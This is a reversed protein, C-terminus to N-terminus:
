ITNSSGQNRSLKIQPRSGLIIGGCDYKGTKGICFSTLVQIKNSEVSGKNYSDFASNVRLFHLIATVSEKFTRTGYASHGPDAVAGLSDEQAQQCQFIDQETGSSAM